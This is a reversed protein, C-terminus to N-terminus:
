PEEPALATTIRIGPEAYFRPDTLRIEFSGEVPSAIELVEGLALTVPQDNIVIEVQAAPDIGDEDALVMVDAHDVGDATFTPTSLSLRLRGRLTFVGDVVRFRYASRRITTQLEVPVVAWPPSPVTSLTLQTREILGDADCLAWIRYGM